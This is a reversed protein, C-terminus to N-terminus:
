KGSVRAALEDALALYAKTGKAQADYA